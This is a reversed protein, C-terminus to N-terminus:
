HTEPNSGGDIVEKIEQVDWEYPMTAHLECTDAVKDLLPCSDCGGEKQRDKCFHILNYIMNHFKM